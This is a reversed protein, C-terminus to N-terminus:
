TRRRNIWTRLEDPLAKVGRQEVTVNTSSIQCLSSDFVRIEWEQEATAAARVYRLRGRRDRYHVRWADRHKYWEPKSM